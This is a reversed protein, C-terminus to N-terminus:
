RMLYKNKIPKHHQLIDTEGNRGITNKDSVEYQSITTNVQTHGSFERFTQDFYNTNLYVFLGAALDNDLGNKSTHIVNLHNEVTFYPTEIERETILSARNKEKRRQCFISKCSYINRAQICDKRKGTRHSCHFETEEISCAM